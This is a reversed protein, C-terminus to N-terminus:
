AAVLVREDNPPHEYVPYEARVSDDLSNCYDGLFNTWLMVSKSYM